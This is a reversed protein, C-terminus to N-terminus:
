VCARPAARGSDGHALERTFRSGRPKPKRGSDVKAKEALEAVKRANSPASLGPTLPVVPAAVIPAFLYELHGTSLKTHLPLAIHLLVLRGAFDSMLDNISRRSAISGPWIGAIASRQEAGGRV